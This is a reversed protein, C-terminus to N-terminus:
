STNPCHSNSSIVQKEYSLFVMSWKNEKTEIEEPSISESIGLVGRSFSRIISNLNSKFIQQLIVRTTADRIFLITVYRHFM